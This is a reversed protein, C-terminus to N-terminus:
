AWRPRNCFVKVKVKDSSAIQTARQLDLTVHLFKTGQISHIKDFNKANDSADTRKIHAEYEKVVERELSTNKSKLIKM